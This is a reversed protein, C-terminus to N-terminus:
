KVDSMEFFMLDDGFTCSATDITIEGVFHGKDKTFVFELHQRQGEEGHSGNEIMVVKFPTKGLNKFLANTIKLVKDATTCRARKTPWPTAGPTGSPEQSVGATSRSGAALTILLFLLACARALKNM